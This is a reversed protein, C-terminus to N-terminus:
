ITKLPNTPDSPPDDAIIKKDIANVVGVTQDILLGLTPLLAEFRAKAIGTFNKELVAIIEQTANLVQQKRMPGTGPAPSNEEAIVMLQPVISTAVAGVWTPLGLVPALTGLIPFVFKAGFTVYKIISDRIPVWKSDTM